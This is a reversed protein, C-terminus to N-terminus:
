QSSKQSYFLYMLGAVIATVIAPELFRILSTGSKKMGKKLNLYESKSIEDTLTEFVEGALLVEGSSPDLLRYAVAAKAERIYLPESLLQEKEELLVGHNVIRYFFTPSDIEDGEKKFYFAASMEVMERSLAEILIADYEEGKMPAREIICVEEYGSDSLETAIRKGASRLCSYVLEEDTLQSNETAPLVSIFLMLICVGIAFKM